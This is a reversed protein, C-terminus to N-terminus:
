APRRGDVGNGGGPRPLWGPVAAKYRAYAEGFAALAEREEARALRVYM